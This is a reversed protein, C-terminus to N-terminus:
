KTLEQSDQNTTAVINKKTRLKLSLSYYYFKM